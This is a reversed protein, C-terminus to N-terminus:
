WRGQAQLAMFMQRLAEPPLNMGGGGTGGAGGGTGGAGGGTVGAGGGTM